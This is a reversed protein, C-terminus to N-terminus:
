RGPGPVVEDILVNLSLEGKLKESPSTTVPLSQTHSSLCSDVGVFLM